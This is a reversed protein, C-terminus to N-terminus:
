NESPTKEAHDIVLVELPGKRKELKLGLQEQVANFLSPADSPDSAFGGKAPGADGGPPPPPPPPLGPLGQGPEVAFELKFDYNGRLGTKDIVPSGLQNGLMDALRQLPQMTAVIRMQGPRMMMIANPRGAPLQPIGDKGIPPPGQKEGTATESVGAPAPAAPKLKPGNKAVSLEYLPFEKTERHFAIGFREVLLNQLMINFQEKTAGDPVKAVIDFRETDLWSPGSIQYRKVGYANQLLLILPVGNYTVRGPDNTGPGGRMGIAVPGGNLPPAPKVTAVEFSLKPENQAFATSCVFGLLGAVLIATQM